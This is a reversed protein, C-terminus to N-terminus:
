PTTNSVQIVKGNILSNSKVAFEYVFQAMETVEAGGTFDPFAGKLMETKVAGLALYNIQLNKEELEVALCETLGLLAAKSSSYVSLGKFKLAGSVGGMSGINVIHSGQKGGMLKSLKISLLYPAFVNTTYVTSLDKFSIKKPEKVLLSAANNILIDIHGVKGQIDKILLDIESENSINYNLIHLGNNKIAELSKPNRSIAFVTYNNQLFLQVMAFGLGKSAGTIVATKM